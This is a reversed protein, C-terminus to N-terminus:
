RPVARGNFPVTSMPATSTLKITLLTPSLASLLIPLPIQAVAADTQESRAAIWSAFAALLAIMAKLRGSGDNIMGPAANGLRLEFASIAPGPELLNVILPLSM